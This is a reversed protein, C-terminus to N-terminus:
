KLNELKYVTKLYLGTVSDILNGIANSGGSILERNSEIWEAEDRLYVVMDDVEGTVPDVDAVLGFLGQYTEVVEDVLGHISEYFDGLAMHAAYSGTKWHHRHALDRAHFTRGILEEIM